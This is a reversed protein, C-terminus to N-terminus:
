LLDRQIVMWVPLPHSALLSSQWMRGLRKIFADMRADGSDLLLLRMLVMIIWSLLTKQLPLFTGSAWTGIPPTFLAARCTTKDLLNHDWLGERFIEEAIEMDNGQNRFGGEMVLLIRQFWSGHPTAQTFAPYPGGDGDETQLYTAVIVIIVGGPKLCREAELMFRRHDRIQPYALREIDSRQDFMSFTGPPPLSVGSEM